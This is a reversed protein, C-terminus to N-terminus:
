FCPCHSIFVTSGPNHRSFQFDHFILFVCHLVQLTALFLLFVHFILFVCQPVHAITLFSFFFINSFSVCVSHSRGYPSFCRFFHWILFVCQLFQSIALFLSFRSSPSICVMSGPNRCSFYFGHFIICVCEIVQIIPLIV